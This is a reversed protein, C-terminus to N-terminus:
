GHGNGKTETELLIIKMAWQGVLSAPDIDPPLTLQTTRYPMHPNGTLEWLQAHVGGVILLHDHDLWERSSGVYVPLPGWEVTIGVTGNGLGYGYGDCTECTQSAEVFEAPPGFEHYPYDPTPHKIIEGERFLVVEGDARLQGWETETLIISM